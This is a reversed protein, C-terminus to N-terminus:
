TACDPDTTAKGSLSVSECKGVGQTLHFCYRVNRTILIILWVKEALANVCTEFMKGGVSEYVVNVGEPYEARLVARVDEKRRWWGGWNNFFVNQEGCELM